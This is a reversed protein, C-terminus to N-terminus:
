FMVLQAQWKTRRRVMEVTRVSDDIYLGPLEARNLWNVKEMPSLGGHIRASRLEPFIERLTSIVPPSSNSVVDGGLGRFLRLLPTPAAYRRLYAPLLRGKEDHDLESCWEQWPRVHFDQPPRVGIAHYARLNAERTHILTGDLDWAVILM